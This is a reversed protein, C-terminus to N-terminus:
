SLSQFFVQDFSTLHSPLITCLGGAETSFSKQFDTQPRQCCGVGQTPGPGILWDYPFYIFIPGEGPLTLLSLAIRYITGIRKSRPFASIASGIAIATNQPQRSPSAIHPQEPVRSSVKDFWSLLPQRHADPAGQIYEATMWRECRAYYCLKYDKFTSILSILNLNCTIARMYWITFGHALVLWDRFLISYVYLRCTKWSTQCNLMDPVCSFYGCVRSCDWPQFWMLISSSSNCSFRNSWFFPILKKQEDVLM